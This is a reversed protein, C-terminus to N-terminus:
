QWPSTSVCLVKEKVKVRKWWGVRDREREWGLKVRKGWGVRDRERERM